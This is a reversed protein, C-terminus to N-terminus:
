NNRILLVGLADEQVSDFVGINDGTITDFAGTGNITSVVRYSGADPFSAVTVDLTGALSVGGTQFTLREAPIPGVNVFDILVMFTSEITVAGLISMLAPDGDADVEITGALIASQAGIVILRLNESNADTGGGIIKGTEQLNFSGQVTLVDEELYMQGACTFDTEVVLAGEGKKRFTGLVTIGPTDGSSKKITGGGTHIWESSIDILIQAGNALTLNILSETEMTGHVDFIRESLVKTGTGELKVTAEHIFVNGPGTMGGKRWVLSNKIRLDGPGSIGNTINGSNFVVNNLRILDGVQEGLTITGTIEITGDGNSILAPRILTNSSQRLEADADVDIVGDLDGGSINLNGSEVGIFGSTTFTGNSSSSASIWADGSGESKIINGLNSITGGSFATLNAGDSQFDLRAGSKNELTGGNIDITVDSVIAFVGSNILTAKLILKSEGGGAHMEAEPAVEVTGSGTIDGDVWDVEGTINITGDVQLEAGGILKGREMTLTNSGTALKQNGDPAGLLLYSVSVDETLTVTYDGELPIAVKDTPSPVAGTSWKSADSWKGDTASAWWISPDEPLEVVVQASDVIENATVYISAIGPGIADALGNSSIAVVGADSSSWTFSTNIALGDKDFAKATFEQSQGIEDFAVEKPNIKVSTIPNPDPDPEPDPDSDNCAILVLGLSLSMALGKVTLFMLKKGFRMKQMNNKFLKKM